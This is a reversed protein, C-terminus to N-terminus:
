IRKVIEIDVKNKINNKDVSGFAKVILNEPAVGLNILKSRM